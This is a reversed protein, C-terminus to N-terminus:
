NEPKSMMMTERDLEPGLSDLITDYTKLEM